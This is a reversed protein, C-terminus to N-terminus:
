PKVWVRVWDVSMPWGESGLIMPYREDAGENILYKFDGTMSNQRVRVDDAYMDITDESKVLSGVTHFARDWDNWGLNLISRNDGAPNRDGFFGKKSPPWQNSTRKQHCRCSSDPKAANCQGRKGGCPFGWQDIALWDHIAAGYSDRHKGKPKCELYEFFDIELYERCNAYLHCVDMTWFSPWAEKWGHCKADDPPFQNVRVRAEAYFSPGAVFGKYGTETQFSSLLGIGATGGWITMIGDKVEFGSPQTAPRNFPKGSRYWKFTDPKNAACPGRAPCHEGRMDIEDPSDFGSCFALRTFGAAQAAPPPPPDACATAQAPASWSMMLGCLLVMTTVFVVRM